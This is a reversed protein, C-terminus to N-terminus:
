SKADPVSKQRASDRTRPLEGLMRDVSESAMAMARMQAPNDFGASASVKGVKTSGFGANVKRQALLSREDASLAQQLHQKRAAIETASPARDKAPAGPYTELTFFKGDTNSGRGRTDRIYIAVDAKPLYRKAATQVDNHPPKGWFAIIESDMWVRGMTVKGEWLTQYYESLGGGSYFARIAAHAIESLEGDEEALAEILRFHISAWEGSHAKGKFVVFPFADHDAYFLRIQRGTRPDKGDVIDSELLSTASM